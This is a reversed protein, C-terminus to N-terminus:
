VLPEIPQHPPPRVRRDSARLRARGAGLLRRRPRPGPEPDGRARRVGPHRLVDVDQRQGAAAQRLRLGGPPDAVPVCPVTM